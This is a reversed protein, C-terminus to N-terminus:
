TKFIPGNRDKHPDIFIKISKVHSKNANDSREDRHYINDNIKDCRYTDGSESLIERNNVFSKPHSDFATKAGGHM